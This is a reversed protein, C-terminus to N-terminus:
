MDQHGHGLVKMGIPVVPVEHQNSGETVRKKQESDQRYSKRYYGQGSYLKPYSMQGRQAETVSSLSSCSSQNGLERGSVPNESDSHTSQPYLLLHSTETMASYKKFRISNVETYAM